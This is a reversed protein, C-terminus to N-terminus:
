AMRTPGRQLAVVTEVEPTQPFLDVPVLQTARLGHAALCDLDRALTEPSCSVVVARDVLRALTALTAPDSSRRAPNMVAADWEGEFAVDQVKAATVAVNPPAVARAAEAAEPVEEVLLVRERGPALMLGYAGVGAYLDLVRRADGVLERVLAHLAGAQRPDVQFFAGPHL